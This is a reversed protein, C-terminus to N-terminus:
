TMVDVGFGARIFISIEPKQGTRQSVINPELFLLFKKRNMWLLTCFPQVLPQM